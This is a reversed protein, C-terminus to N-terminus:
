GATATALKRQTKLAGKIQRERRYLWIGRVVTFGFLVILLASEGLVGALVLASTAVFLPLAALDFSIRRRSEDRRRGKALKIEEPDTLTAIWSRSTAVVALWTREAPDLSQWRTRWTLDDRAGWYAAAADVAGVLVPLVANVIVIVVGPDERM